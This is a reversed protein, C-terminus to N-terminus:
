YNFNTIDDKTGFIGDWGASILLFTKPNYPKEYTDVRKNWIKYYFYLDGTAFTKGEDIIPEAPTDSYKHYITDDRVTTLNVIARNDDYNYIYDRYPTVPNSGSFKKSTQDARFYLVPSGVKIKVTTPGTASPITLEVRKRAFIDTMVPARPSTFASPSYINGTNGTGYIDELTYAGDDKMEIYQEKRRQLSKDEDDQTAGNIGNKAYVGVPDTPAYWRSKPDFGQLDRGLLAEALHQAGTVQDSAGTSNPIRSSDPYGDFDKSYLELGTEYGHFTSKQKLGKASRTVVKIAPSLLGVLMAIIAIVVLLEILTFGSGHSKRNIRIM